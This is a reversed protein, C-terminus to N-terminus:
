RVIALCMRSFWSFPCGLESSSPSASPDEVLLVCVFWARSRSLVSSLACASPATPSDDCDEELFPPLSSFPWVLVLELQGEGEEIKDERQVCVAAPIGDILSRLADLFRENLLVIEKPLTLGVLLSPPCLNRHLLSVERGARWGKM